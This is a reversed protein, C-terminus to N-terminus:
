SSFPAFFCTSSKSFGWVRAKRASKVLMKVATELLTDKTTVVGSIKLKQRAIELQLDNYIGTFDTIEDVLQAFSAFTTEYKAFFLMVAIYMNVKATQGKTM